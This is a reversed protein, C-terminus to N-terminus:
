PNLEKERNKAIRVVEPNSNHLAKKINEKTVNKHKIALIKVDDDENDLALNINEPSANNHSIAHEKMQWGKSNLVHTIHEANVNKNKIADQNVYNDSDNLAKTIHDATANDHKAARQRVSSDKDNLAKTIHDATANKNSIAYTRILSDTHELAKDIHASTVNPHKIAAERVIDSRDDLAKDIHESTANPHKIAAQRVSSNKDNLAKDIHASTVNPHKIAAERVIPNKDALAKDIHESTANPHKIAAERVIPNKDELASHLQDSTAKKNMKTSKEDDNYLTREKESAIGNMPYHKEAFKDVAENAVHPFAGYKREERHFSSGGSDDHHRKILTRGLVDQSNYEGHENPKADNHVHMAILTGHKVEHPMARAAPMREKDGHDRGMNACSDWHTNTSASAVEAPRRSIVLKTNSGGRNKSWNEHDDMVSKPANSKPLYKSLEVSRGSKLKVNDGDMSDGQSKVHDIVKEPVPNHLPIEIHHNGVGFTKDHLKKVDRDVPTDLLDDAKDKGMAAYLDKTAESLLRYKKFNLM